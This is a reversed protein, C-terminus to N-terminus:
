AIESRPHGLDILDSSNVLSAGLAHEVLRRRRDVANGGLGGRLGAVGARQLKECLHDLKRNFKTIPWGLRNAAVRNPIVPADAARPDVLYQECLVLLLMRQDENLEVYGWDITEVADALDGGFMDKEWEHSELAGTIEYHAPGARFSCAFEGYLVSSSRGPALVVSSPGTVDRLELLQRKSRNRLWWVGGANHFRGVVRHMYPNDDIVLDASRGFTLSQSPDLTYENGCFELYLQSSGPQGAVAEDSPASKRVRGM